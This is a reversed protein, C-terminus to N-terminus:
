FVSSWNSQNFNKDNEFSKKKLIKLKVTLGFLKQLLYLSYVTSVSHTIINKCPYRYFARWPDYAMPHTPPMTKSHAIIHDVDQFVKRILFYFLISFDITEIIPFFIM